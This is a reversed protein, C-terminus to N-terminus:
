KLYIMKRSFIAPPADNVKAVLTVFYIGTSRGNGDWVYNHIGSGKYEEEVLKDHIRGTADTIYLNVIADQLLDFSIKTQGNFPNPYNQYLIFLEPVFEENIRSDSLHNSSGLTQSNSYHWSQGDPLRSIAFPLSDLVIYEIPKSINELMSELTIIVPFSVKENLILTSDVYEKYFGIPNSIEWLIMENNKITYVEDMDAEGMLELGLKRSFPNWTIENFGLSFKKRGVKIIGHSTSDMPILDGEITCVIADGIILPFNQIFVDDVMLDANDWSDPVHVTVLNSNSKENIDVNVFEKNSILYVDKNEIQEPHFFYIKLDYGNKVPKCGVIRVPAVVHFLNLAEDYQRILNSWEERISSITEDILIKWESPKIYILNRYTDGYSAITELLRSDQIADDLFPIAPEFANLQNLPFVEIWKYNSTIMPSLLELAPRFDTYPYILNLERQLHAIVLQHISTITEDFSKSEQIDRCTGFAPTDSSSGYIRGYIDTIEVKYFYRKGPTCDLDLYNPQDNPVISLLEFKEGGFEKSFVRVEDVVISDPISWSILLSGRGDYVVLDMEITSKKIEILPDNDLAFLFLQLIGFILINKISQVM